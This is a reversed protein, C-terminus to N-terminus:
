CGYDTIRHLVIELVMAQALDVIVPILLMLESVMLFAHDKLLLRHLNIGIALKQQLIRMVILLLM